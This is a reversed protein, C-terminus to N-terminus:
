MCICIGVVFFVCTLNKQYPKTLIVYFTLFFFSTVFFYFFLFLIYTYIFLKYLISSKLLWNTCVCVPCVCTHTCFSSSFVQGLGLSLVFVCPHISDHENDFGVIFLISWFDFILFTLYSLFLLWTGEKWSSRSVKLSWGRVEWWRIACIHRLPRRGPNEAVHHRSPLRLPSLFCGNSM